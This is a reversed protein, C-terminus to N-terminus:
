SAWKELERMDDEDEEVKTKARGRGSPESTPVAPTPLDTIPTKGTNLLEKDLEEQELEELERQLDDEDVDLGIGVPNSIAESIEKSLDQSEAIDDMMSHVDEVNMNQHASKLADAATKMTTLVANNTNAGELADRQTEITLMTGDIQALQQEYRKKRKLAQLAARKNTTGNKKAIELEQDIKKQLYEQKKILLDETARLKQIADETTPGKEEKKSGFLKGLFSM